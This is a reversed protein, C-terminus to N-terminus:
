SIEAGTAVARLLENWKATCRLRSYKEEFLRRANSGMVTARHPDDVLEAVASAVARADDEVAWGIQQERVEVAMDTGRGGVLLVPKGAALAAAYKSPSLLGACDDRM